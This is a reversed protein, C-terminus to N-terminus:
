ERGLRGLKTRLWRLRAELGDNGRLRSDIRLSASDGRVLPTGGIRGAELWPIHLYESGQTQEHNPLRRANTALSRLWYTCETHWWNHMSWGEPSEYRAQESSLLGGFSMHVGDWDEAAAGWDPV